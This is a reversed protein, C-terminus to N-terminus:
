IEAAQQRFISITSCGVVSNYKIHQPTISRRSIIYIYIYIYICVHKNQRLHKVIEQHSPTECVSHFIYSRRVYLFHKPEAVLLTKYTTKNM